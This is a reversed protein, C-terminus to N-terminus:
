GRMRQQGTDTRGTFIWTQNGKPNVPKIEKYDLPSEPTKELVVIRFCWNKLNEAKKITWSECRYIVVPFVMAKISPVSQFPDNCLTLTYLDHAPFRSLSAIHTTVHSGWLWPTSHAEQRQELLLPFHNIQKSCHVHHCPSIYKKSLDSQSCHLSQILPTPLRHPTKRSTSAAKWPSYQQNNVSPYHQLSSFFSIIKLASSSNPRPFM